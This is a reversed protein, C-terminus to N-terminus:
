HGTSLHARMAHYPGSLITGRQKDDRALLARKFKSVNSGMSFHGKKAVKGHGKKPRPTVSFWRSLM